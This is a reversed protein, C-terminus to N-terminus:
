KEAALAKLNELRHNAYKESAEFLEKAHEPNSRALANFRVEGKLFEQYDLQPDKSDLVFANKGEERLRPDFRFLNWYGSEVAKKEETQSYTMGGAIGHLICPAYAIVISTGHYSEAESFAKVCQANNAGMSVQAVYVDEYSMAIGALSKKKGTKGSIAFEASAGTNTSKSAQGGTNSYVETDLVLINVDEGSAFIHDLGSFGIDYAWGDGGIIWVSKKVLMDALSLLQKAEGSNDSSLKKKLEEVRKRQEFIGTEDSQDAELIA